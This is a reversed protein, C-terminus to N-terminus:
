PWGLWVMYDGSGSYAHVVWVYYGEGGEYLIAEDSTGDNISQAVVQWGGNIWKYLYLDFDANGPGELFGRHTGAGAWYYQGNPQAEQWGHDLWGTYDTCGPCMDGAQYGFDVDDRNEGAALSLTAMGQSDTGDLDFTPQDVGAPLTSEDVKVVYTGAILNDFQYHGDGDTTTMELISGGADLLKVAVGAIGTSPDEQIGNGNQDNWVTDGISGTPANGDCTFTIDAFDVFFTENQGGYKNSVRFRVQTQDSIFASIDFSRSDWVEGTIGTIEELLNWTAGGDDSVEVAIADDYDVGHSTDFSFSFIASVAGTLDVQRAASPEGGTNPYDDLKLFGGNVVVNGASPGAGGTQPDNEIWPGSWAESGNNGSFSSADFNDRVNGPTCTPGGTGDCDIFIAALAGSSSFHVEMSRAGVAGLQVTQVSNDGLDNATAIAIVSGNEDFVTVTAAESSDIDLLQVALIDTPQDFDFILDGGAGRDDPDNSDGDESVILVKGLSTDNQGTAGASGGSGLGPGGFDVNPTGLDFDGGTPNATDFVMARNAPVSSVTIGFASLEDDVIQGTQLGSGFSDDEFDILPVCEAPCDVVDLNFDGKGTTPFTAGSSPQSIVTWDLWSSAGFNLNKGNAGFGVQFAAGTDVIDLAAGAFDGEGTLTGSWSTYYYWTATDIPGGNEVYFNDPLAKFPSGPPPVATRGVLEVAVVFRNNPNDGDVALGSLTATGDPREVLEGVPIFQFNTGIGPLWLAHGGSNIDPDAADVCIERDDSYGFDVDNNTEGEAITVAATNATAIGDFDFTPFVAAGLTGPDVVVTYDGAPLNNFAYDGDGSTTVSTVVNGGADILTVTVGNIGAEGADQDGDANTDLWVRDGIAGLNVPPEQYGFDADDVDEGPGLSVTTQSDLTGDRDFTPDFGAPPTVTVTYDGPSLDGFSYEGNPGTTATGVVNGGADTLTVTLGPIGAEGADQVGDGNEDNWVRDGISGNADYGFDADEVNEGPGLSVTTQNDLTGDRDFTPDFGAPPTVTVTYDGPPLDGFSYEGNPGTTATDVVNGGADTLTVTLGPIGAEGADQVGDGNEDNWVRDGISGNAVYGFDVDTRDDGAILTISTEDDLVGDLDFTQSFGAQPTVRVTYDGGEVNSFLYDGDGSTM